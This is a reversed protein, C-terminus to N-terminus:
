PTSAGVTVRGATLVVQEAGATARWKLVYRGDAVASTDVMYRADAGQWAATHWDAGAPDLGEGVLAAEIGVTARDLGAPIDVQGYVYVKSGREILV